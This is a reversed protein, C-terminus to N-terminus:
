QYEKRVWIKKKYYGYNVARSNNGVKHAWSEHIGTDVKSIWTKRQIPILQAFPTNKPIVGTWGERLFFPVNGSATFEDSDMFGSMTTFPLDFRNMPHTVMLSWGRPVKIGWVGSFTMHNKSHGAPRPITEGIDGLRESILPLPFDLLEEYNDTYENKRIYRWEVEGDNRTIEVDIWTQLMYGSIMADLFPMCSKMGGVRDPDKIDTKLGTSNNLFMEGKRYWEPLFIKAPMPSDTLDRALSHGQSIDRPTFIIKKIM